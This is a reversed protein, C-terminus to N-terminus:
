PIIRRLGDLALPRVSLGQKLQLTIPTLRQYQFRPFRGLRGSGMYQFTNGVLNVINKEWKRKGNRSRQKRAHTMRNMLLSKKRRTKATGTSEAGLGSARAGCSEQVEQTRQLPLMFRPAM